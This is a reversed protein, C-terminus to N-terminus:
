STVHVSGLSSVKSKGFIQFRFRRRFEKIKTGWTARALYILKLEQGSSIRGGSRRLDYLSSSGMKRERERERERKNKKKCSSSPFDWKEKWFGRKSKEKIKRKKKGRKSKREENKKERKKRKEKKKKNEVLNNKEGRLYKELYRRM